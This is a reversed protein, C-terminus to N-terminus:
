MTIAGCRAATAGAWRRRSTGSLRRPWRKAPPTSIIASQAFADNADATQAVSNQHLSLFFDPAVASIAENRAELSRATDDTRVLYVQAGLARLRHAAALAAALNLDKEAPAGAGGAGLAGADEGGHGADLLVRVGALLQSADAGPAPRMKVTVRVTGAEYAILHGWLPEDFSLILECGGEFPKVQVGRVLQSGQVSFDPAVDADYFRLSLTSGVHNTYAVPAGHGAFM